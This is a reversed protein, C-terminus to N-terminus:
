TRKASWKLYVFSTADDKMGLIIDNAGIVINNGNTITVVTIEYNAM